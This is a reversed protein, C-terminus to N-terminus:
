LRVEQKTVDIQRVVSVVAFLPAVQHTTLFRAAFEIGRIHSVQVPENEDVQRLVEDLSNGAYGSVVLGKELMAQIEEADVASYIKRIM